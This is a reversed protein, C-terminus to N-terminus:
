KPGEILFNDVAKKLYASFDRIKEKKDHDQARKIIGKFDARCTEYSICRTRAKLGGCWTTLIGSQDKTTLKVGDMLSIFQDCNKEQSLNSQSINVESLNVQSSKVQSSKHPIFEPTVGSLSQLKRLEKPPPSILSKAEKERDVRNYDHFKTIELYQYDGIKYLMILGVAHLEELYQQINELTFSKLYPVIQGKIIIPDAEHRGDVDVHPYILCYLFGPSDSKLRALKESKSLRKKLMRGEAM